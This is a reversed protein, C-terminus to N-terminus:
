GAGRAFAGWVAEVVDTPLDSAQAVARYQQRLEASDRLLDVPVGAQAVEDALAALLRAAEQIQSPRQPPAPAQVVRPMPFPSRRRQVGVVAPAPTPSPLTSLPPPPRIALPATGPAPTPSPLMSLPSRAAAGFPPRRQPPATATATTPYATLAQIRPPPAPQTGDVTIFPVVADRALPPTYPEVGGDSTERVGHLAVYHSGAYLVALCDRRYDRREPLGTEPDVAPKSPVAEPVLATAQAPDVYNFIVVGRVPGLTPDGVDPLLMSAFAYAEAAGGWRVSQRMANCYARYAADVDGGASLAALYEASSDRLLTGLDVTTVAGAECDHFVIAKDAPLARQLGAADWPVALLPLAYPRVQSWSLTQRGDVITRALAEYLWLAYRVALDLTPPRYVTTTSGGSPAASGMIAAVADPATMEDVSTMPRIRPVGTVGQMYTVAGAPIDDSCMILYIYFKVWKTLGNLLLALADNAPRGTQVLGGYDGTAWADSAGSQVDRSFTAGRGLNIGTLRQFLASAISRYFCAGDGNIEQLYYDLPPADPGAAVRPSPPRQLFLAENRATVIRVRGVDVAYRNLATQREAAGARAAVLAGRYAEGPQRTARSVACHWLRRAWDLPDAGTARGPSPSSPSSPPSPLPAFTDPWREILTAAVEDAGAPIFRAARVNPDGPGDLPRGLADVFDFRGLIEGVQRLFTADSWRSQREVGSITATLAGSLGLTGYIADCDSATPQGDDGAAWYPVADPGEVYSTLAEAALRAILPEWQAGAAAGEPRRQLAARPRIEYARTVRRM